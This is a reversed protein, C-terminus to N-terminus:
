KKIAWFASGMRDAIDRDFNAWIASLPERHLEQRCIWYNAFQIDFYDSNALLYSALLYQENYGRGAWSQFYDFPLFIDHIGVLVGPKLRPLVDLMAVTVDSNMFSRHSNDIFLSDGAELRDFLSVDLNELPSRIVEDCIADIEARPQPDISVIKTDKGSHLLASKAFMTSNGSGIEILLSKARDAAWMLTLGDLMPMHPNRWDISFPFEGAMQSRIVPEFAALDLLNRRYTEEQAAIVNALHPNGVDNQWRPVFDIDYEIYVPTQGKRLRHLASLYKNSEVVRKLFKKM